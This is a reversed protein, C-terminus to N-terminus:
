SLIKIKQKIDKLFSKTITITKVNTKVEDEDIQTIYTIQVAESRNVQLFLAQFQTPIQFKLTMALSCRITHESKDSLTFITYNDHTTLLVVEKWEVRQLKNRSKIFFFDTEQKANFSSVQKQTYNQIATQISAFITSPNPPKVLYAAPNAKVAEIIIEKDSIGTIFIFPIRYMTNILTGIDIGSKTGNLDIDVLAIDFAEKNLLSIAAEISHAIGKVSFGFEKLMFNMSDATIPDDEIILVQIQQFNDTQMKRQNLYLSCGLFPTRM